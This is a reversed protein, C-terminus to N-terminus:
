DTQVDVSGPMTQKVILYRRSCGRGIISFRFREGRTNGFILGDSRTLMQGLESRWHRANGADLSGCRAFLKLLKALEVIKRFSFELTNAGHASGEGRLLAEVLKAVERFEADSTFDTGRIPDAFIESWVAFRGHFVTRKAAWPTENSSSTLAWCANMVSVFENPDIRRFILSELDGAIIRDRVFSPYLARDPLLSPGCIVTLLAAITAFRDQHTPLEFHNDLFRDLIARALVKRRYSQTM